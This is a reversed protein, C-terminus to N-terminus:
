PHITKLVRNKWIGDVIERKARGWGGFDAVFFPQEIRGFAPDDAWREEVSRFGHQVFLKQAEESWLFHALSLVAPRDAPAVNRDLVVLTHESFVTRRPYVLEAKLRGRARDALAEQEYTILADGFGNDFQTRAARASAAQAIVNKWIGSLLREGAEPSGGPVLAGAGYEALIAWSAGGSTLPDAHVVGIGPRALDDFDHINKPNGPRVLIVFPTRNVVGANPLSRWSGAEVVGAEALRDADSELSLLALLAPAGLLIQSAVTGSGAFSGVVEVKEGTEALWRKEFAPFIAETMTEGLTSFGYFVVTRPPRAARALPLWPWAAWVLLATGFAATVLLDLRAGPRKRHLNM